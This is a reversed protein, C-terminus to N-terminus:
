KLPHLLCMVLMGIMDNLYSFLNCHWYHFHCFYFIMITVILCVELAQSSQIESVEGCNYCYYHCSHKCFVEM